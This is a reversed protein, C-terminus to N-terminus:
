VSTRSVNAISTRKRRANAAKMGDTEIFRPEGCAKRDRTVDGQFKWGINKCSGWALNCVLHLGSNMAISNGNADGTSADDVPGNPRGCVVSWLFAGVVYLCVLRFVDKKVLSVLVRPTRARRWKGIDFYTSLYVGYAHVSTLPPGFPIRWDVSDYIDDIHQTTLPFSINAARRLVILGQPEDIPGQSEDQNRVARVRAVEEYYRLLSGYHQTRAYFDHIFVVSDPKLYPLIKLACALGTNSLM